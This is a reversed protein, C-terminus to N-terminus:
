IELSYVQSAWSGGKGDPLCGDSKEYMDFQTLSATASSACRGGDQVAFMNFSKRMTAVACKAIANTRSTYSGDLISNMDELSSFSSTISDGYCGVVKYGTIYYVQNALPGGEGDFGCDTSTGYKDFTNYATASSACWGGNQVAFVSFNRTKAAQYCKEIANQRETYFGNLTPDQEELSPIARDFQDRFCGITEYRPSLALSFIHYNQLSYVQSAWSGGEGDPLCVDSKEYMDFQTLSATASSACRGGDQVAFMNFSKRMTAVACKAIANKRSTYSGNLISDMNELSSFSSTISDGYCGVVKYGTIYYVQNAWPGGEGDSGCDTSTGYKDFTNYATASSACWGGNQVAFVSFNRTKAAQYCKETANQRDPYSGNLTPDQEELSPIARDEQDRFCGITEYRPFPALECDHGIFSFSCLCRYGRETFGTQCTGGNKCPNNECASEAGQYKYTINKVLENGHREHTSNNLECIFYGNPSAVIRFNYSDCNPEVYCRVRCSSENPVQVVQILHNILRRNNFQKAQDFPLIRCQEQSSSGYPTLCFVLLFLLCFLGSSIVYVRYCDM